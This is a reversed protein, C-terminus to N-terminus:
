QGHVPLAAPTAAPLGDVVLTLEMEGPLATLQQALDGGHVHKTWIVVDRVTTHAM